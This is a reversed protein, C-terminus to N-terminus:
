RIDGKAPSDAQAEQWLLDRVCQMTYDTVILMVARAAGNRIMYSSFIVM